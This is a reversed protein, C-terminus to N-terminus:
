TPAITRMSLRGCVRVHPGVVARGEIVAVHVGGRDLIQSQPQVGALAIFVYQDGANIGDEPTVHKQKKGVYSWAEDPEIRPVCLGRMLTTHLRDCGLGVRVGLRMITDRHINTLRETARISVGETLASIVAVQKDRPLINM